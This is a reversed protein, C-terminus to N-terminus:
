WGYLNVFICLNDCMMKDGLEQSFCVVMVVVKRKLCVYMILFVNVVDGRVCCIVELDVFCFMVGSFFWRFNNIKKKLKRQSKISSIEYGVKCM